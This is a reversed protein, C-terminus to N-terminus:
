RKTRRAWRQFRKERERRVPSPQPSPLEQNFREPKTELAAARQLFREAKRRTAPRSSRVQRRVFQLVKARHRVLPLIEGLAVLAHGIAVNRCEPTQYRAQEVQLVEAAIRDAWAPRAKAMRAGGQIVNAATIMVPGRIPSFYKRFIADFRGAVDVRALHSLVFAANWQLIKNEHDLMRAFTAFQPYLLDPRRESVLRLAKVCGFKVRASDAELGLFVVKLLRPNQIADHGLQLPNSGARGIAALSAKM